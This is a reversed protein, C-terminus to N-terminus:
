SPLSVTTNRVLAHGRPSAFNEPMATGATFPRFASVALGPESHSPLIISLERTEAGAYSGILSDYALHPPHGGFFGTWEPHPIVGLCWLENYSIHRDGWPPLSGITSLGHRIIGSTSGIGVSPKVGSLVDHIRM